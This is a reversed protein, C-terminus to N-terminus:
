KDTTSISKDIAAGGIENNQRNGAYNLLFVVVEFEFDLNM